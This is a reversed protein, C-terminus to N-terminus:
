SEHEPQEARLVFAVLEPTITILVEPQRPLMPMGDWPHRLMPADPDYKLAPFAVRITDGIRYMAAISCGNRTLGV